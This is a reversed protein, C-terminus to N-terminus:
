KLEVINESIKLNKIEELKWDWHHRHYDFYLLKEHYIRNILQKCFLPNGETRKHMLEAFPKIEADHRNFSDSFLAEFDVIRLPPVSLSEIRKEKSRMQNQFITLPHNQDVENDRYAGILLIHNLSDNTLIYEM